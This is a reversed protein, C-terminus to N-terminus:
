PKKCFHPHTLGAAEKGAGLKESTKRSGFHGCICFDPM